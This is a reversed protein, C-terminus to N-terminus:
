EHLEGHLVNESTALFIQQQGFYYNDATLSSDADGNERRKLIEKWFLGRLHKLFDTDTRFNQESSDPIFAM